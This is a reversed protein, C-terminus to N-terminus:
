RASHNDQNRAIGGANARRLDRLDSWCDTQDTKKAHPVLQQHRQHYFPFEAGHDLQQRLYPHPHHAVGRGEVTGEINDVEIWDGIQFPRDFFIVLSGFLNALTDRSALAIAAGGLGLSAILSGVSYGMNQVFLIIGLLILFARGAKRLIPIMQDDLKTETAIAADM